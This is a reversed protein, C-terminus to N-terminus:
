DCGNCSTESILLGDFIYFMLRLIQSLSSMTQFANICINPTCKQKNKARHTQTGKIFIGEFITWFTKRKKKFKYINLSFLQISLLVIAIEYFYNWSLLFCDGDNSKRNQESEPREEKPRCWISLINQSAFVFQKTLVTGIGRMCTYYIHLLFHFCLIRLSIVIQTYWPHQVVFSRCRCMSPEFFFFFSSLHVSYVWITM